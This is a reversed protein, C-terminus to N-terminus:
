RRSADDGGIVELLKPLISEPVTSIASGNERDVIIFVGGEVPQRVEALAKADQLDVFTGRYPFVAKQEGNWGEVAQMRYLSFRSM